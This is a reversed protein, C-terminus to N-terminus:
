LPKVPNPNEAELTKYPQTKPKFLIYIYIYIINYIFIYIYIYIYIYIHPKLAKGGSRKAAPPDRSGPGRPLPPGMRPERQVTLRPGASEDEPGSPPPLAGINMYIYIYIHIHIHIYIYIYIGYVDGAGLVGVLFCCSSCTDKRSSSCSWRRKLSTWAPGHRPLGSTLSLPLPLFCPGSCRPRSLFFLLQLFCPAPCGLVALLPVGLFVRRGPLVGVGLSPLAPVGVGFSGVGSPAPGCLVRGSLAPGCDGRSRGPCAPCARCAPCAVGSKALQLASPGPSGSLAVARAQLVAAKRPESPPEQLEVPLANSDM